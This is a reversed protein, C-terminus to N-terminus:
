YVSPDSCGFTWFNYNITDVTQQTITNSTATIKRIAPSLSVQDTCGKFIPASFGSIVGNELTASGYYRVGDEDKDVFGFCVASANSPINVRYHLGAYDENGKYLDQAAQYGLEGDGDIYYCMVLYDKLSTNSVTNDFYLPRDLTKEDTGVTTHIKTSPSIITEGVSNPGSINMFFYKPGAPFLYTEVVGTYSTIFGVADSVSSGYSYNDSSFYLSNHFHEDYAM